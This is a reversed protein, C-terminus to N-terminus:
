YAVKGTITFKYYTLTGNPDTTREGGRPTVDTFYVSAQLRKALQSVDGDSQAGGELTFAGGKEVFSIIWVHKPDWDPAFRRNPDGHTGDSVREAMSSTMTPPKGPTLVDGLEQMLNAPVSEARVLKGISAERQQEAVIVQDLEKQKAVDDRLGANDSELDQNQTRLEELQKVQQKHYGFYLGIVGLGLLLVGVLVDVEGPRAERAKKKQPLLNIRIM